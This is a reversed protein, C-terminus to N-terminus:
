LLLFPFQCAGTVCAACGTSTAGASCARQQERGVQSWSQSHQRRWSSLGDVVQLRQLISSVKGPASATDQPAPLALFFAVEIAHTRRVGCVWFSHNGQTAKGGLTRAECGVFVVGAQMTVRRQRRSCQHRVMPVMTVNIFTLRRRLVRKPRQKMQRHAEHARDVHM